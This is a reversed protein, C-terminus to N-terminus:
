QARFQFAGQFQGTGCSTGFNMYFSTIRLRWYRATGGTFNYYKTASTSPHVGNYVNTWTVKDASSDIAFNKMGGLGYASSWANAAFANVFTPSGFDALITSATAGSMVLAAHGDLTGNGFSWYCGGTHSYTPPKDSIWCVNSCVSGCDVGAEGGNKLGDNCAPGKCTGGQCTGSQCDTNAACTAGDPCASPCGGGCDVDTEPGNKVGDTCSAAQCAGAACVGSPCSASAAGDDAVGNCDNDIGDCVEASPAQDAVCALAGGSCTMTGASCAGPLGTSCSAGGGPNGNDVVGDCDDDVGNCTEASPIWCQSCATASGSPTECGNQTDGDCDTFGPACAAGCVGSSCAAVTNPAGPASCAHGCAGCNAADSGLRAECGNAPNGDCDAWGVPCPPLCAGTCTDCADGKGDGDTDLQDANQVTPCNDQSDLIGDGDYDLVLAPPPVGLGATAYSPDGSGAVDVICDDLVHPDTIGAAQCAATASAVASAPLTAKNVPKAICPLAQFYATTEGPLYDFLSEAASIRWSEAYTYVLTDFAVPSSLVDGQRTVLDNAPNGDFVGLAGRLESADRQSGAFVEYNVYHTGTLTLAEGGPYFVVIKGGLAEIRGGGPLFLGTAPVTAPAGDIWLQPSREGYYAVRSAGVRTAVATNRAIHPAAQEQRVQITFGHNDTVAVLEGCVQFDYHLGDWTVLHPDGWSKSSPGTLPPPAPITCVGSQCTAPASPNSAATCSTGNPQHGYSCGSTPNCGNAIQCQGPVACTVASGVCVGGQCTDGTTCASGDNCSTGNPQGTCPGPLYCVDLTPRAGQADESSAFTTAGTTDRDLFLGENPLAGSHWAQVLATLDATTTAGPPFSAVVAPLYAASLTNWTVASESWPATVRHADIPSQANFTLLRTLTATASVISVGPPIPSLDFRLLAARAPGGSATVGVTLSGSTGYNKDPSAENVLADAIDGALGRAVTVCVPTSAAASAEGVREPASAHEGGPAPGGAQCGALLLACPAWHIFRPRLIPFPSKRM